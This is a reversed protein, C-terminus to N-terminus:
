RLSSSCALPQVGGFIGKKRAGRPLFHRTKLACFIGEAARPIERMAAGQVRRRWGALLLRRARLLRARRAAGGCQLEQNQHPWYRLRVSRQDKRSANRANRWATTDRSGERPLGRPASSATRRPGSRSRAAAMADPASRNETRLSNEVAKKAFGM